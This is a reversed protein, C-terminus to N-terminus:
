RIPTICPQFNPGAVIVKAASSLIPFQIRRHVEAIQNASESPTHSNFFFGLVDASFMVILQSMVSTVSESLPHLQSFCVIANSRATTLVVFLYLYFLFYRANQM